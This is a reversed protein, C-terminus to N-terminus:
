VIWNVWGMARAGALVVLGAFLLKHADRRQDQPSFSLILSILLFGFVFNQRFATLVLVVAAAAKWSWCAFRSFVLAMAAALELVPIANAIVLLPASEFFFPGRALGPANALGELRKLETAPVMWMPLAGPASGAVAMALFEGRAYNGLAWKTLASYTLVITPLLGLAAATIRASGPGRGIALFALTVLVLLETGSTQPLRFVCWLCYGATLALTARTRESFLSLTAMAAVALSAARQALTGQSDFATPIAHLFALVVVARVSARRLDSLVAQSSSISPDLRTDTPALPHTATEDTM